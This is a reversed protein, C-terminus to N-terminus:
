LRRSLRLSPELVKRFITESNNIAFLENKTFEGKVKIYSDEYDIKLPDSFVKEDNWSFHGMAQEFKKWQVKPEICHFVGSYILPQDGKKDNLVLRFYLVKLRDDIKTITQGRSVETVQEPVFFIAFKSPLWFHVNNSELGTSGRTSIGYGSPRGIVFKEEEQYLLGEIEKVLYSVELYLKHIFEFALNAQEAIEDQKAM